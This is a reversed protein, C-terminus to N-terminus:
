ALSLTRKCARRRDARRCADRDVKNRTMRMRSAPTSLRLDYWEVDDVERATSAPPFLASGAQVDRALSVAVVEGTVMSRLKHLDEVLGDVLGVSIEVGQKQLIRLGRFFAVYTRPSPQVGTKKMQNYLKFADKQKGASIAGTILQNWLIADGQKLRRPTRKEFHMLLVDYAAHKGEVSKAQHVRNVLRGIQRSAEFNLKRLSSNEAAPDESSGGIREKGKSSKAPEKKTVNYYRTSPRTQRAARRSHSPAADQAEPRFSSLPRIQCPCCRARQMMDADHAQQPPERAKARALWAQQPRGSSAGSLNLSAAALRPWRLSSSPRLM